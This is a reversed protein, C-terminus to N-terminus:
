GNREGILVGFAATHGLADRVRFVGTTDVRMAKTALIDLLIEPPEEAMTTNYIKCRVIDTPIVSVPKVLPYYKLSVAKGDVLCAAVERPLRIFDEHLGADPSLGLWNQFPTIINLGM